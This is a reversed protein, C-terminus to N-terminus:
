LIRKKGRMLTLLGLVVLTSVNPEPVVQYHFQTELGINGLTETGDASRSFFTTGPIEAAALVSMEGSGYKRIEVILSGTSRNYLFPNEFSIALDFASPTTGGPVNGSLTLPGDYVILQNAGHNAALDLTFPGNGSSVIIEVRDFTAVAGRPDPGASSLRFALGDIQFLQGAESLTPFLSSSYIQQSSINGPISFPFGSNFVNERTEAGQPIILTEAAVHVATLAILGFHILPKM